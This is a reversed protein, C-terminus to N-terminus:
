VGGRRNLASKPNTHSLRARCPAMKVMVGRTKKIPANTANLHGLLPHSADHLELLKGDVATKSLCGRMPVDPAKWRRASLNVCCMMIKIFFVCLVKNTMEFSGM